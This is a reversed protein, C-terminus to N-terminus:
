PQTVAIVGAQLTFRSTKGILNGGPSEGLAAVMSHHSSKGFVGGATFDLGPKGTPPPQADVGVEPMDADVPPPPAVDAGGSDHPPTSGGDMQMMPAGDVLPPVAGDVDFPEPSDIGVIANCGVLASLSLGLLVLTRATM